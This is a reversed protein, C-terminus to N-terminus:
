ENQKRANKIRRKISEFLFFFGFLILNYLTCVMTFDISFASSFPRDQSFSLAGDAITLEKAKSFLFSLMISAASHLLAFRTFFEHPSNASTTVTLSNITVKSHSLLFNLSAPLSLLATLKDKGRKDKKFKKKQEKKEKSNDLILKIASYDIEAHLRDNSTTVTATVNQLFLLACLLFLIFIIIGSM